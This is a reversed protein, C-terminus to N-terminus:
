DEKIINIELRQGCKSCFFQKISDYVRYDEHFTKCTPCQYKNKYVIWAKEKDIDVFKAKKTVRM